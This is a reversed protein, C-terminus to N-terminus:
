LSVFFHYFGAGDREGAPRGARLRERRRSAGAEAPTPLDAFAPSLPLRGAPLCPHPPWSVQYEYMLSFM